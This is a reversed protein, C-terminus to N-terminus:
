RRPSKGALAQSFSQALRQYAPLTGEAPYRRSGDVPSCLHEQIASFNGGLPRAARLVAGTAVSGSTALRDVPIGMVDAITQAIGDNSSAGGTLLIVEPKAGIWETQLRMNIFQGELCARVLKNPDPDKQFEESGFLLPEHFDVRPNIEPGFFPIMGDGDNGIPTNQLGECDFATWEVGLQEKVKERALSGNRFCVLSMFGGLPNGFVHGYGNPDTKVEPMAAFFTDSTGLSIVVKGPQAAGMGVLSSPNDGTFAVVQASGPIGYKQQFYPALPGVVTEALVPDPLKNALEPATAELLEEDWTLTELNLLNMGSGDGHDIPADKGALVSALFSSVLHIRTTRAYADPDIKAFRRIQPGSFREIPVSGSRRCVEMAGGLKEAIEECEQGTSVDMWIPSTARSICPGIQKALNKDSSLRSLHKEWDENLYVTGHQQGAGSIGVVSSFDAGGESMRQLCLDLADLWMLPDAHFEGESNGEIFGQPANYQPLDRGFNVEEESLINGSDDVLLASLSQTSADFGLWSNM